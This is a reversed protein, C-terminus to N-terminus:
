YDFDFSLLPTYLGVLPRQLGIPGVEQAQRTCAEIVRVRRKGQSSEGVEKSQFRDHFLSFDRSICSSAFCCAIPDTCRKVIGQAAGLLGCCKFTGRRFAKGCTSSFFESVHAWWSKKGGVRGDSSIYAM